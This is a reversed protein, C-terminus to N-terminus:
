ILLFLPTYDFTLQITLKCCHCIINQDFKFNKAAHAQNLIPALCVFICLDKQNLSFSKRQFLIIMLQHYMM